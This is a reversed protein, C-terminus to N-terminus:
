ELVYLIGVKFGEQIALFDLRWVAEFLNLMIAHAEAPVSVAKSSNGYFVRSSNSRIAWVNGLNESLVKSEDVLSFYHFASEALQTDRKEKGHKKVLDEKGGAVGVIEAANILRLAEVASREKNCGTLRGIFYGTFSDIKGRLVKSSSADIQLPSVLMKCRDLFASFVFKRYGDPLSEGAKKDKHFDSLFDSVTGLTKRSFSFHDGIDGKPHVVAELADAISLKQGPKSSFVRYSIIGLGLRNGLEDLQSNTFGSRSIKASSPESIRSLLWDLVQAWREIQENKFERLLDFDDKRSKVQLQRPGFLHESDVTPVGGYYSFGLRQLNIDDSKPLPREFHLMAEVIHSFCWLVPQGVDEPHLNELAAKMRRQRYDENSVPLKTALLRTRDCIDTDPIIKPFAAYLLKACELHGNALACGIPLRFEENVISLMSSILAKPWQSILNTLFEALGLAAAVHFVTNFGDM